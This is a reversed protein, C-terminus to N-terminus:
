GQCVEAFLPKIVFCKVGVIGFGTWGKMGRGVWTLLVGAVSSWGRCFHPVDAKLGEGRGNRRDVDCLHLSDKAGACEGDGDRTSTEPAKNDEPIFDRPESPESPREEDGSDGEYSPDLALVCGPFYLLLELSYSHVHVGLTSLIM